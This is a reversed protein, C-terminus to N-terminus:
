PGKSIHIAGYASGAASRFAELRRLVHGIQNWSAFTQSVMVREPARYRSRPDIEKIGTVGSSADEQPLRPIASRTRHEEAFLRRDIESVGVTASFTRASNGGAAAEASRRSLRSVM